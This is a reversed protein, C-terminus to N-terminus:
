DRPFLAAWGKHQKWLIPLSNNPTTDEFVVALQTGDYGLPHKKELTSGIERCLALAENRQTTDNFYRTHESFVRDKDDLLDCVHVEIQLPLKSIRRDLEAIGDKLGCISLFFMKVSDRCALINLDKALQEFNEAASKGTGILDDVFVVAEIEKARKQLENGLMSREIVNSFYINNEDAYLKAYQSGSKGHGDLYSIIIDNRKLKGKEIIHRSCPNKM